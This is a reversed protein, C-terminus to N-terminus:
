TISSFIIGDRIDEIVNSDATFNTVDKGLVPVEGLLSELLNVKLGIKSPNVFPPVWRLRNFGAFISNPNNMNIISLPLRELQNEGIWLMKLNPLHDVLDDPIDELNNNTLYLATLNTLSSFSKVDLTRIRNMRLDLSDLKPLKSDSNLSIQVCHSPLLSLHSDITAHAIPPIVEILNSSLNFVLPITHIEKLKADPFTKLMMRSFNIDNSDLQKSQETGM